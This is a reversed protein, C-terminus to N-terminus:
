LDLHIDLLNITFVARKARKDRFNQGTEVGYLGIKFKFIFADLGLGFSSYGGNFGTYVDIGPFDLRLGFHTKSAFATSPDIANHFDFALTYKFMGFDQEFASGLNLSMKQDPIDNIGDEKSFSTDGVDLLSAGFTTRSKGRKYSNELGLDVGWGSGKSYGMNRRLVYYNDSNSIIELIRTGFLDFSGELSQRNMNKVGVGVSFNNGESKSGHGDATPCVSGSGSPLHGL